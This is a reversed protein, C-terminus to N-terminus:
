FFWLLFIFEVISILCIGITILIPHKRFVKDIYSPNESKQFQKFFENSSSPFRMKVGKQAYFSFSFKKPKKLTGTEPLM